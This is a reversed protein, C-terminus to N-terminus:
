LGLSIAYCQRQGAGCRGPCSVREEAPRSRGRCCRCRVAGPRGVGGVVTVRGVGGGRHVGDPLDDGVGDAVVFAGVASARISGVRLGVVHRQSQLPGDESPRAVSLGPPCGRIAASLRIRQRCAVRCIRRSSEVGDPRCRLGRDAGGVTRESRGLGDRDGPLVTGVRVRQGVGVAIGGPRNCRAHCCRIAPSGRCTKRGLERRRLASRTGDSACRVAAAGAETGRGRSTRQGDGGRDAARDVRDRQSLRNRPKCALEAPENLALRLDRDSARYTGPAAGRRIPCRDGAIGDGDVPLRQGAVPGCRTEQGGAAGIAVGELDSVGTAVRM